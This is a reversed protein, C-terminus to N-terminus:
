EPLGKPFGGPPSLCSTQSLFKTPEKHTVLHDTDSELRHNIEVVGYKDGRDGWCGKWETYIYVYIYINMFIYLNM